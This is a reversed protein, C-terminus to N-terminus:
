CTSDRQSSPSSGPARELRLGGSTSLSELEALVLPNDGGGTAFLHADFGTAHRSARVACARLWGDGSLWAVRISEALPEGGAVPTEPDKAPQPEFIRSVHRFIRRPLVHGLYELAPAAAGPERSNLREFAGSLPKPEYWCALARLGRQLASEASERFTDALLRVEPAPSGELSLAPELSRRYEGLERLFLKHAASRPLVPKDTEVRVRVLSRLGLDRLRPEPSRVLTMLSGVARPSAIYALTRAALAQARPGREGDLLSHLGPVAKAGIATVARRAEYSL